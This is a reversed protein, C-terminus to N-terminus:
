RSGGKARTYREALADSLATLTEAPMDDHHYAILREIEEAGEPRSPEQSPKVADLLAHRLAPKDLRVRDETSWFYDEHVHDVFRDTIDDATLPRPSASAAREVAEDRQRATTAVIGALSDRQQEAKKAKMLLITQDATDLRARLDRNGMARRATEKWLAAFQQAEDRERALQATDKVSAALAAELLDSSITPTEQEILAAAVGGDMLDGSVEADSSATVHETLHTLPFPGVTVEDAASTCTVWADAGNVTITLSDGDPDTHEHANM